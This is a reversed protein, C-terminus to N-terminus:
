ATTKSPRGDCGGRKGSFSNGGVTCTGRSGTDGIRSSQAHSSRGALTRFMHRDAFGQPYPRLIQGSKSRAPMAPGYGEAGMGDLWLRWPEADSPNPLRSAARGAIVRFLNQSLPSGGELTWQGKPAPPRASVNPDEYMQRLVEYPNADPGQALAAAVAAAITAAPYSWSWVAALEAHGAAYQLFEAQLDKWSPQLSLPRESIGDTTPASLPREESPLAHSRLTTATEIGLQTLQSTIAILPGSGKSFIMVLRRRELLALDNDDADVRISGHGQYYLASGSHSRTFTFRSGHGSTHADVIAFLLNKERPALNMSKGGDPKTLEGLASEQLARRGPDTIILDAVAGSSLNLFNGDIQRARKLAEVAGYWAETPVDKFEPLAAQLQYLHPHNPFVEDLKGLIARALRKDYM